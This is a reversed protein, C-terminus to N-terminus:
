GQDSKSELENSGAETSSDSVLHGPYPLPSSLRAAQAAFDSRTAEPSAHCALMLLWVDRLTLACLYM